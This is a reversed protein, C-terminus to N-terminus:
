RLLQIRRLAKISSKSDEDSRVMTVHGSMLCTCTLIKCRMGLCFYDVGVRWYPPCRFLDAPASNDERRVGLSMPNVWARKARSIQCIICQKVFSRSSALGAPLHYDVIQGSATGSRYIVATPRDQLERVDPALSALD